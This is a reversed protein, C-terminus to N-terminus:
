NLHWSVQDSGGDLRVNALLSSLERWQAMGQLDLSRRLRVVLEDSLFAQAVLVSPDECVAFLNPFSDKLPTAGVWWDLWFRTRFGNRMSFKAGLTFYHKVKHISRWFPSGGQGAGAFLNDADSYKAWIIKAWIADEEQYLRCVWKLLLAVNM